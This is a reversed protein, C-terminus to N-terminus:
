KKRAIKKIMKAQKRRGQALSVSGVHEVFRIGNLHDLEHLFCRATVGELTMTRILGNENTFEVDINECRSTNLFLGPYTLCGEAGKVPETNFKVVKPNICVIQFQDTGILFVREFVGCQNASLGVGGYLKMTMKMRSLLRNMNNNPLPIDYEPIPQKLMPHTEDYLPLPEIKEQTRAISTNTDIVFSESM